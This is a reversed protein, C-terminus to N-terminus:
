YFEKTLKYNEILKFITVKLEWLLMEMCKSLGEIVIKQLGEMQRKKSLALVTKGNLGLNLITDMM